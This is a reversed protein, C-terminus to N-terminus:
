RLKGMKRLADARSVGPKARLIKYVQREEKSLHRLATIAAEAAEHDKGREIARLQQERRKPDAWLQTMRKSQGPRAM